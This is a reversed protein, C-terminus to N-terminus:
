ISQTSPHVQPTTASWGCWHSHILRLWHLDVGVPSFAHGSFNINLIADDMDARFHTNFRLVPHGSNWVDPEVIKIPPLPYANQLSCLAKQADQPDYSQPDLRDEVESKLEAFTRRPMRTVVRPVIGFLLWVEPTITGSKTWTLPGRVRLHIMVQSDGALIKRAKRPSIHVFDMPAM